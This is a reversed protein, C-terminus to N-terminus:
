TITLYSYTIPIARFEAKGIQIGPKKAETLSSDVSGKNTPILLILMM